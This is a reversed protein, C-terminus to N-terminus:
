IDTALKRDGLMNVYGSEIFRKTLTLFTSYRDLIDLPLSGMVSRLTDLFLRIIIADGDASDAHFAQITREIQNTDTIGAFQLFARVFRPDSQNFINIHFQSWSSMGTDAEQDGVDDFIRLAANVSHDLVVKIVPKNAIHSLSPLSHDLQRYVAYIIGVDGFTQLNIISHKAFLSAYEAWFDSALQQSYQRSLERTALQHKFFKLIPEHFLISADETSGLASLHVSIQQLTALRARIVSSVIGPDYAAQDVFRQAAIVMAEDDRDLLTDGWFLLGYCIAAATLREIDDSEIAIISCLGTVKVAIQRVLADQDAESVDPMGNRVLLLFADTFTRHLV